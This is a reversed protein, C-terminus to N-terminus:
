APHRHLVAAAPWEEAAVKELAARVEALQSHDVRIAYADVGEIGFERAAVSRDMHVILGGSQYDNVVRRHHLERAADGVGLTIKDGVKLGLRQALVSGVLM